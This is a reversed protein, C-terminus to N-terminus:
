KEGIYSANKGTKKLTDLLADVSHDSEISVKKSPLDIEFQVGSALSVIYWLLM